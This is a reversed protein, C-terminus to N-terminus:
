FYTRLTIFKLKCGNCEEYRKNELILASEEM